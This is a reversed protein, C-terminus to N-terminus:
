LSELKNFIQCLCNVEMAWINNSVQSHGSGRNVYIFDVQAKQAALFDSHSDGIFVSDERATGLELLCQEILASEPKRCKCTGARHPCVYLSIEKDSVGLRQCLVKHLNLVHGMTYLGKSIGQQNTAIAVKLGRSIADQMFSLADEYIIFDQPESVYGRRHVNITGDRDLIILEKRIM